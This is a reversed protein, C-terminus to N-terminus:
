VVLQLYFPGPAHHKYVARTSPGAVNAKVVGDQVHVVFQSALRPLWIMPRREGPMAHEGRAVAVRDRLAPPVIM